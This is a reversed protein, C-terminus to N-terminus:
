TTVRVTSLVLCYFYYTIANNNNELKLYFRISQGTVTTENKKRQVNSRESRQVVVIGVAAATPHNEGASVSVTSAAELWSYTERSAELVSEVDVPVIGGPRPRVRVTSAHKTPEGRYQRLRVCREDDADDAIEYGTVQTGFRVCRRHVM